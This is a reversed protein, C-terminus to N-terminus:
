AQPPKKVDTILGITRNISYPAGMFAIQAILAWEPPLTKTIYMHATDWGLCFGAIIFSLIRAFSGMGNEESFVSRWFNM